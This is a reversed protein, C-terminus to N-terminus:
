NKPVVIIMKEDPARFNLQSKAEKLLNAENSYYRIDEQIKSNDAVISQLKMQLESFKKQAENKISSFQYTEYVFLGVLLCLVTVIALRM